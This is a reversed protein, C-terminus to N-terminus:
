MGGLLEEASLNDAFGYGSNKKDTLDYTVEADYYDNVDIVAEVKLQYKEQLAHLEELFKTKREQYDETAAKYEIEKYYNDYKQFADMKLGEEIDRVIIPLGSVYTYGRALLKRQTVSPAEKFTIVEHPKSFDIGDTYPSPQGLYYMKTCIKSIKKARNNEGEVMFQMSIHLRTYKNEPSKIYYNREVVIPKKETM